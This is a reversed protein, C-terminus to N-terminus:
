TRDRDVLVYKLYSRDAVLIGNRAQEQQADTWCGFCMPTWFVDKGDHQQVFMDGYHQGCFSCPPKIPNNPRSSRPTVM